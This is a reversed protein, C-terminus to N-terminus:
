DSLQILKVKKLDELSILENELRIVPIPYNKKIYIYAWVLQGDKWEMNIKYGGRAKLGIIKGTKFEDPLAPLFSIEDLQSQVLMEAICGPLSASGDLQFNCSLDGEMYLDPRRINSNIHQFTLGNEFGEETLMETLIKNARNGDLLRTWCWMRHARAWNGGSVLEQMSFRGDGRMNLSKKAAIALEPTISPHVQKGPYVAYLHAIHRHHCDPNDIDEYWEQLQGYKGIKLPLLKERTNMLSDAFDTYGLIRAASSTNTFLDWIMEIDQYVGPICYQYKNSISDHFAPNLGNKTMLAGHEASVTPATILYGKFPILNELWFISADRLLPYAQKRLYETDQTFAFQDWVNQCHWASGMPYMGWPLYGIPAAHGWINGTTHSVWGNTGYVRHAVERGSIAMNEIWDIYAQQCEALDTPGCSWYIEQINVNSQYNGAWPAVKFTNWVGQLNAPLTHPRSSSIIMYRGLNFALVKYGPDSEGSKLRQFRENTPLKEADKNGEIFLNIRDYLSKYDDIHREKLEQYNYKVLKRIVDNNIDEPNVGTYDPYQMKYNTSVTLLLVVSNSGRVTLYDGEKGLTGGENNISILVDFPRHNGNIFGKVHYINKSIKVTSSDQIIDMGLNFSIEKPNSASFRMVLVRDPYSCFYERQFTTNDINYQILGLSNELDLTRIYKDPKSEKNIFKIKLNGVSTFNGFHESSGFFNNVVLSDALHSDGNIIAKRILPLSEKAKPNVGAKEWDGNAPEGTWMSAESIALVEEKIGGFFSAGFYGNGLHLAQSNWYKAPYTYWLRNNNVSSSNDDNCSYYFFGILIIIIGIKFNM